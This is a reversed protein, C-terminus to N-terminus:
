EHGGRLRRAKICCLRLRWHGGWGRSATEGGLQGAASGAEQPSLGAGEQQVGVEVTPPM